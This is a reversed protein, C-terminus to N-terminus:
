YIRFQQLFFTISLPNLEIGTKMSDKFCLFNVFEIFNLKGDGDCDCDNLLLELLDDAIAYKAAACGVKLEERSIFSDKDKLLNFLDCYIFFKYKFILSQCVKDYAKFADVM